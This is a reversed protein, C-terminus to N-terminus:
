QPLVLREPVDAVSILDQDTLLSRVLESLSGFTFKQEGLSAQAVSLKFISSNSDKQILGNWLSGDRKKVSIAFWQPPPVMPPEEKFGSKRIVFAGHRRPSLLKETAERNLGPIFWKDMMSEIHEITGKEAGSTKSSARGAIRSGGKKPPQVPVPMDEYVDTSRVHAAGVGALSGTKEGRGFSRPAEGYVDEEAVHDAATARGDDVGLENFPRTVGYVSDDADPEGDRPATPDMEAYIARYIPEDEAM